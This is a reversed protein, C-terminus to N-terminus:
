FEHITIIPSDFFTYFSNPALSSEAYLAAEIGTGFTAGATVRLAPPTIGAMTDINNYFFRLYLDNEFDAILKWNIWKDLTKVEPNSYFLTYTGASNLYSIQAANYDIKITANKIITSSIHKMRVYINQFLSFSIMNYVSLGMKLSSNVPLDKSIMRQAPPPDGSIYASSVGNYAQRTSIFNFASSFKWGETNPSFDTVSIVRGERRYVDPSGLRAALEASDIDAPLYESESVGGDPYTRQFPM